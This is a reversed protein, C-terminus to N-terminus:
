GVRRYDLLGDDDTTLYGPVNDAEVLVTVPEDPVPEASLEPTVADSRRRQSRKERLHVVAWQERVDGLM